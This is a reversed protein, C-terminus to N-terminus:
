NPYIFSSHNVSTGIVSPELRSQYAANLNRIIFHQLFAVSNQRIM